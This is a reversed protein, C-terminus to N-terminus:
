PTTGYVERFGQKLGPVANIGVATCLYAITLALDMQSRM